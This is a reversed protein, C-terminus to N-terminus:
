KYITEQIAPVGSWYGINKLYDKWRVETVQGGNYTFKIYKEKRRLRVFEWGKGNHFLKNAHLLRDFQMLGVNMSKSETKISILNM